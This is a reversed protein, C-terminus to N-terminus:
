KRNRRYAKRNARQIARRERRTTTAPAITDAGPFYGGSVTVQSVPYHPRPPNMVRSTRMDTAREVQGGRGPVPANQRPREGHIRPDYM